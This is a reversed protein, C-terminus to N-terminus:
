VDDRGTRHCLPCGKYRMCWNYGHSGPYITDCAGCDCWDRITGDLCVACELKRDEMLCGRMDNLQQWLIDEAVGIGYEEDLIEIMYEDYEDLRM